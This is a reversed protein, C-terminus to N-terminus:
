YVGRIVVMLLLIYLLEFKNLLLQSVEFKKNKLGLCLNLTSIKIKNDQMTSHQIIEASRGGPWKAVRGCPWTSM